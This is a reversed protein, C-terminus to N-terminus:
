TYSGSIRLVDVKLFISAKLQFDHINNKGFPPHLSFL